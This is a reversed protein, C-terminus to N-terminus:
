ERYIAYDVRDRGDQKAKYLAQDALEIFKDLRLEKKNNNGWEYKVTAVGVSLTVHDSIESTEHPIYLAKVGKRIREGIRLADDSDVYPLIIAFEEGGYRAVLDQPRTVVQCLKNAVRKLCEDGAQHGYTDNYFKFFDIDCIILSLVKKDNKSRKWERTLIEDFFRRNAIGTLGDINVMRELKENKEELENNIQELHKTMDKLQRERKKREKIENNLKLASEVRAYLEIKGAQKQIYDIAGADFAKKLWESKTESTIMIIPTDNYKPEQKIIQCAEVGDMDEMIIDMLILDIEDTNNNNNRYIGLIDFAEKASSAEKIEKYGREELMKKIFFRVSRSDDVVLIAM